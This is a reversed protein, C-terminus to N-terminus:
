EDLNLTDLMESLKTKIIPEDIIEIELKANKRLDDSIQKVISRRNSYDRELYKLQELYMDVM